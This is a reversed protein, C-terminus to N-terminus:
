LTIQKDNINNRIAEERLNKNKIHYSVRREFNKNTAKPDFLPQLRRAINVASEHPNERLIDLISEELDSGKIDLLRSEKTYGGFALGMFGKLRGSKRKIVDMRIVNTCGFQVEGTRCKQQIIYRTSESETTPSICFLSDTYNELNSSGKMQSPEKSDLRNMKNSHNVLILTLDNVKALQKLSNMFMVAKDGKDSELLINSLNDVIVIKFGEKKVVESIANIYATRDIIAYNEFHMMYVNDNFIYPSYRSNIKSEGMEFDVYLVKSPPLENILELVPDEDPFDEDNLPVKFFNQGTAIAEALQMGATTKNSGPPGWMITIDGEVILSGMIKRYTRPNLLNEKVINSARKLTNPVTTPQPKEKRMRPRTDTPVGVITPTNGTVPNTEM